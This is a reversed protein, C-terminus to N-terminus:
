DQFGVAPNDPDRVALGRADAKLKCQRLFLHINM